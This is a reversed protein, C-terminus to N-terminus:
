LGLKKQMLSFLRVRDNSTLGIYLVLPVYMLIFASSTIIFCLFDKETFLSSIIYLTTVCIITIIGIPIITSSIYNRIPLNVMSKMFLVRTILYIIDLGCKIELVISPSYGKKLFFYSLIINCLIITSIILQYKKIRGTAQVTMWMPASLTEFLTYILMLISFETAYEPPQKLWLKLLFQMNFCVPCVIAFLLLYSYKSANTILSRLAELNGSAYYKVIQPRFAIQFNSVFQNIASSVQNAIGMAANVIVGFFLNLLINLGQNATMSAISGFLSWGSFSLLEKLMQANWVKKIWCVSINRFKKQTFCFFIIFTIIAIFLQNAAFLKLKDITIFQLSMANILNLSVEVISIYAYFVLKEHAIILSEFPTKLLKIVLIIASIHFVWMAANLRLEPLQMKNQVYWRGIFEIVFLIGIALIVYTYLSLNFVIKLRNSEGRGLEYNLFRQTATGLPGSIFNFAVIFSGVINYIGYDEIGLSDLVIRSTYLQVLMTIVMRIYMYMTNKVIRKSNTTETM